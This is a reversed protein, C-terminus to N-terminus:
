GSKKMSLVLCGYVAGTTTGAVTSAVKIFRKTRRCTIIEFVDDDGVAGGKTFTAGPIDTYTGGSTDCEQIKVAHTGDTLTGFVLIGFLNGFGQLMDVATGAQTATYAAIKLAFGGVVSNALDNIWTSGGLFAPITLPMIVAERWTAGAARFQRILRFYLRATRRCLHTSDGLMAFFALVPTIPDHSHLVALAHTIRNRLRQFM